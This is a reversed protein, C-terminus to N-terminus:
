TVSTVTLCHMHSRQNIMAVITMTRDQATIIRSAFRSGGPRALSRAVTSGAQAVVARLSRRSGRTGRRTFTATAIAATHTIEGISRMGSNKGTM